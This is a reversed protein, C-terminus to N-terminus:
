SYRVYRPNSTRCDSVIMFPILRAESGVKKRLWALAALADEAMTDETVSIDTSDGFGRYDITLM